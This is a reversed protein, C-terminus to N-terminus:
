AAGECTTHHAAGILAAIYDEVAQEAARVGDRDILRALPLGLEPRDM